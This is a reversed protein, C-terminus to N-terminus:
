YLEIIDVNKYNMHLLNYLSLSTYMARWMKFFNKDPVYEQEGLIVKM